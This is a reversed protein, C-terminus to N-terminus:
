EHTSNDGSEVKIILPQQLDVPAESDVPLEPSSGVTSDVDESEALAKDLATKAVKTVCIMLVVSVVLGLILFAWRATSFENWGHTVDSLDKLTTGVYVLALTIPVMGLWSALLYEGLSVPTVSLLYNLMSFPLLPALRLLLIIKFGSRQIAIAVLRFQPYDKLRTVVLSRGITRGLLFAAGAGVTAGISDSIFGLLLGFLYGGGLTLVSAPVALVTLPIYAVALVLPGWPGLDKEVWLLFDKLIAEIPLTFCAYVIAALLVLLLAIRLASGRTFAM